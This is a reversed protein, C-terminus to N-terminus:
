AKGSNLPNNIRILHRQAELDPVKLSTVLYPKKQESLSALENKILQGKMALLYGDIGILDITQQFFKSIDSYARSIVIDYYEESSHSEIRQCISQINRLQLEICAQRVFRIKKQNSDLLTFQMDPRAIALLIGPLGAGTGVDLVTTGQLHPLVVLSDMVHRILMQWPDHIATLNYTHSWKELLALYNIIKQHQEISLSLSAQQLYDQLRVHLADQIALVPM